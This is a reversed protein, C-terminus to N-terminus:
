TATDEQYNVLADNEKVLTSSSYPLVNLLAVSKDKDVEVFVM